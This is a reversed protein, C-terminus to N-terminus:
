RPESEQRGGCLLGIEVDHRQRAFNRGGRMGPSKHDILVGRNEVSAGRAFFSVSAEQLLIKELAGTKLERQEFFRFANRCKRHASEGVGLFQSSFAVADIDICPLDGDGAGVIRACEVADLCQAFRKRVQVGSLFSFRGDANRGRM